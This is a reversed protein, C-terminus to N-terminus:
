AAEINELIHLNELNLGHIPLPPAYKRFIQPSPPELNQRTRLAMVNKFGDRQRFIRPLYMEAGRGM